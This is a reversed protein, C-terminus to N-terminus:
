HSEIILCICHLIVHRYKAALPLTCYMCKLVACTKLLSCRGSQKRKKKFFLM